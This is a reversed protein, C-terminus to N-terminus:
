VVFSRLLRHIGSALKRINSMDDKYVQFEVWKGGFHTYAKCFSDTRRCDVFKVKNKQFERPYLFLSSSYLDVSGFKATRNEAAKSWIDQYGVIEFGQEQGVHSVHRGYFSTLNSAPFTKLEPRITVPVAPRLNSWIRILLPREGPCRLVPREITGALCGQWPRLTRSNVEMLISEQHGGLLNWKSVLLYAPVRFRVDTGPRVIYFDRGPDARLYDAVSVGIPRTDKTHRPM